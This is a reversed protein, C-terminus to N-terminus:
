TTLATRIRTLEELITETGLVPIAEPLLEYTVGALAPLRPILDGALALTSSATPRSHVDVQM